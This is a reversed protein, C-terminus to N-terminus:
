DRILKDGEPIQHGTCGETHNGEMETGDTLGDRMGGEKTIGSGATNGEAQRVTPFTTECQRDLLVGCRGTMKYALQHNDADQM